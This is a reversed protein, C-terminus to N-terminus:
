PPSAAASWWSSWSSTRACTSRSSAARSPWAERSKPPPVAPARLAAAISASCCCGGSCHRGDCADATRQRARRRGGRVIEDFGTGGIGDPGGFTLKVGAYAAIPASEFGFVEQYHQDLLNEVRGFVEVGPQLKYSATANVLWYASSRWASRRSSSRCRPLRTDEMRGNYIAALTATGRGGDFAYAIDARASHPPRRFERMAPPRRPCRYLHLRRRADPQPDLKFRASVEVGERTSEGPLNIATFNGPGPGPCIGNIKDTLNARFYTVDFMVMGKYFTFEVGADWGFSEEPTLGPNPVFFPGTGFQEFMTPLKVATGVSAHPRMDIERLVLSAATRWTTFDQFNDNDDHRIGATLFLRDAFGGRWEGTYAM